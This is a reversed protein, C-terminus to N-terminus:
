EFLLKRQNLLCPVKKRINEIYRKNNNEDIIVQTEIEYEDDESDYIVLNQDVSNNNVINRAITEFQKFDEQIFLDVNMLRNFNYYPRPHKLQYILNKEGIIGELYRGADGNTKNDIGFKIYKKPTGKDFNVTNVRIKGQAFVEHLLEFVIPITCRNIEVEDNDNMIQDIEDKRKHFLSMENFVPIKTFMELFVKGRAKSFLRYIKKPLLQLLEEKLESLTIIDIEFVNEINERANINLSITSNFQAIYLSLASYEELKLIIRKLFGVAREYINNSDNLNIIKVPIPEVIVDINEIFLEIMNCYIVIDDILDNNSIGTGPNITQYKKYLNDLGIYIQLDLIKKEFMNANIRSISSLLYYFQIFKTIHVDVDQVNLYQKTTNMYKVVLPHTYLKKKSNAYYSCIKQYLTEKDYIQEVLSKEFLLYRDKFIIKLQNLIKEKEDDTFTPTTQVESMLHVTLITKNDALLINVCFKFHQNEQIYNDDISYSVNPVNIKFDSLNVGCIVFYSKNYTLFNYPLQYLKNHNSIEMLPNNNKYEQVLQQTKGSIATFLSIQKNDSKHTIFSYIVNIMKNYITISYNEEIKAQDNALKFPCYIVKETAGQVTFDVTPKTIKNTYIKQGVKLSYDTFLNRKKDYDIFNIIIKTIDESEM